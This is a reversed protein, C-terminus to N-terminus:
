RGGNFTSGLSSHVEASARVIISMSPYHFTITCPGGNSKWCMPDVSTQIAKMILDVTSMTQQFNLLPGAAVGGFPGIGQALDGLYYVRTVLMDRAKEITVVQISEDKVVFTLGQAALLQRLVTRTALGKAQLSVTKTLDIGIDSLSKKDIFLNQDIVNSLEQLAEELMRGNWDVTVPKNLAEIIKKEKESLQIQSLRRKTKEKWDKPFEIDGIAPLSSRSVDNFALTIRKDQQRAFELADEVRSGFGDQEQLRIVSPNNPYSKALAAIEREADKPLGANKLKVIRQIGDNVAKLEATSNEKAANKDHKVTAALPDLKSGVEPLPRGELQAIKASLMANLTQRGETSLAVSVDLNTQATKLIRLAKAQSSKALAEADKIATRVDAEAKQDAIKQRASAEALPDLPPRPPQALSLTGFFGLALVVASLRLATGSRTM